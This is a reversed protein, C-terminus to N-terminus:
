HSSHRRPPPYVTRAITASLWGIAWGACVLFFTHRTAPDATASVVALIVAWVMACGISYTTYSNGWRERM